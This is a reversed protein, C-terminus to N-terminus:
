LNEMQQQAAIEETYKNATFEVVINEATRTPAAGIAVVLDGNNIVEPTNVTTDCVLTYSYIAGKIKLGELFPDIDNFIQLRTYSTNPEFIYYRLLQKIKKEMYLFTRRCTNQDFASDKKGMTRIGWITVGYNPIKPVSNICIKYLDTRQSITPSIAYDLVGNIVGRRLGAAAYWPGYTNDTAAMNAAIFGSIPIWVKEGSFSDLIKVWQAYTSAYTSVVNDFQHKIPYYVSTPFSHVVKSDNEYSSNEINIGYLNTIKTDKGKILIGRPVDSIFFTDGRGGNQMSNAFQTFVNTVSLYNQLSDQAIDSLSSRSTRMDEIGNVITSEDFYAPLLSDENTIKNGKEDIIYTEEQSDAAVSGNKTYQYITGLGGEIVIDIDPYQEDNEVLELARQIKLPVDGITKDSANKASYVGFQFISNNLSFNYYDEDKHIENLIFPSVGAQMILNKYSNIASAAMKHAPLTTDATTEDSKIYERYFYYKEFKELNNKLKDGYVRMKGNFSGDLATFDIDSIYPNMLISLNKSNEVINEVFYSVPKSSTSTSKYRYKSFSWNHKERLSYNLKLTQAGDTSKSLKFLGLSITDDYDSSSIDKATIERSLVRSISGQANGTTSFALRAGTLTDFSGSGYSEGEGIDYDIFGNKNDSLTDSTTSVKVYKVADFSYDLSPTVFMNDTIGLYYGEFSDNIISRATNITIFAAHGMAKKLKFAPANEDPTEKYDHPKNSWDFYSGTIIDYYDKLTVNYTIPSGILYTIQRSDYTYDDKDVQSKGEFNEAIEFAPAFKLNVTETTGKFTETETDTSDTIGDYVLKATIIINKDPLPESDVIRQYTLHLIHKGDHRKELFMKGSFKIEKSVTVGNTSTSSTLIIEPADKDKNPETPLEKTGGAAFSITFLKDIDNSLFEKVFSQTVLVEFSSEKENLEGGNIDFIDSITRTETEDVDDDNYIILSDCDIFKNDYKKKIVPIAPYAMLTYGNSTIGGETNGYPLRSTLVSLGPGGNDLLAKVTYYFYREAANTPKGYILEFDAMNGISIVEEIPGQAAFGPVFVTTSTSTDLHISNDIERIEIGPSGLTSTLAM